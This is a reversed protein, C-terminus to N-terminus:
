DSGTSQVSEFQEHLLRFIRRLVMKRGKDSNENRYAEYLLALEGSDRGSALAYANVADRGEKAIRDRWQEAQRFARKAQREQSGLAVFADEIAVADAERMLKGILQRQRRLASHSRIRAAQDIAVRLEAALPLSDLQSSSLGVLKEGLEQLAAYRRKLETKSPKEDEDM